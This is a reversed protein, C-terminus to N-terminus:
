IHSPPTEVGRGSVSEGLTGGRSFSVMDCSALGGRQGWPLAFRLVFPFTWPRKSQAKSSFLVKSGGIIRPMAHGRNILRICGACLSLMSSAVHDFMSCMISLLGFRDPVRLGLGLNCVKDYLTYLNSSIYISLILIRFVHMNIVFIPRVSPLLLARSLNAFHLRGQGKKVM